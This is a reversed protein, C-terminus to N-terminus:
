GAGPRRAAAELMLLSGMGDAATCYPDAQQYGDNFIELSWPGRYGTALVAAAFGTLDFGGRGPFCRHHRSWTKPDMDLLPADALQVFFIKEGPIDRIGAPEHGLALVHFSDLCVGLAPHGAAAVLHWAHAYSRVHTGWALAEYAIRIGHRSALEALRRLQRAAREDDDVAAQSVNSCVLMTDAGILAMQGFVHEARRLNEELLGDPVAEFDRFPQYLMIRLGLSAAHLRVAAPSLGCASLDGEGIEIGEFGAQAAARLKDDLTGGLSVTAICRPVRPFGGAPGPPSM